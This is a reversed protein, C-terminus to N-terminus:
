YYYRGEGTPLETDPEYSATRICITICKENTNFLYNSAAVFGLLGRIM